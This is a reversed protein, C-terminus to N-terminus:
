TGQSATLHTRVSIETHVLKLSHSMAYTLLQLHPTSLSWGCKTFYGDNHSFRHRAGSQTHVMHLKIECFAILQTNVQQGFRRWTPPQPHERHCHEEPCVGPWPSGCRRRRGTARFLVCLVLPNHSTGAAGGGFIYKNRTPRMGEHVPLKTILRTLTISCM